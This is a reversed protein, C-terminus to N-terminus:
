LVTKVSWHLMMRVLSTDLGQIPRAFQSDVYDLASKCHQIAQTNYGARRYAESLNICAEVFLPAHQKRDRQCCLNALARLERRLVLEQEMELCPLDAQLNRDKHIYRCLLTNTPMCGSASLGRHDTRSLSGEGQLSAPCNVGTARYVDQQMSYWSLPLQESAQSPLRPFHVASWAGAPPGLHGSCADARGIVSHPILGAHEGASRTANRCASSSSECSEVKASSTPLLWRTTSMFLLNRPEWQWFRAARRSSQRARVPPDRLQLFQHGGIPAASLREQYSRIVCFRAPPKDCRAFNCSNSDKPGPM